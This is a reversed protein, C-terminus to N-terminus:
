AIAVRANIWARAEPESMPRSFLYGQADDCGLHKLLTLQEVSEIHEATVKVGLCHALNIIANVIESGRTLMTETFYGDIKLKDVPLDQLYNFSAYGMGFDDIAIELGIDKLGTLIQAALQTNELVESETIELRIQGPDVEIETLIERVRSLLELDKFHLASFNINVCARESTSEHWLKLTRCVTALVWRDIDYILGTKEALPIFRMPPIWGKTPHQWRILAEFGTVHQTELSVIPQYWVELQERAIAQRLETELGWVELARLRMNRDFVVCKGAGLAKAEHMALTADRLLDRASCYEADRLAVGFCATVEIQRDHIALPERLKQQIRQVIALADERDAVDHLLIGIEDGGLRVPFDNKRLCSHTRRAMTALVRDGATMGFSLNLAKFRDFDLVVVTFTGREPWPNEAFSTELQSLFFSRNPLGTLEDYLTASLLKAEAINQESIFNLQAQRAKQLWEFKERGSEEIAEILVIRRQNVFLAIAELKLEDGTRGAEIWVGSRLLCSSREDWLAKADILFNELFTSFTAAKFSFDTDGLYNLERKAWEPPSGLVLFRDESISELCLISLASIIEQPVFFEM